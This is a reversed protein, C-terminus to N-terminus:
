KKKIRSYKSINNKDGYVESREVGLVAWVEVGVLDSWNFKRSLDLEHAVMFDRLRLQKKNRKKADDNPGPMSIINYIGKAFPEDTVEYGIRKYDGKPGVGADVSIVRLLVERGEELIVEDHTDSFDPTFSDEGGEDFSDAGFSNDKEDEFDKMEIEGEPTQTLLHVTEDAVFAGMTAIEENIAPSNHPQTAGKTKAM